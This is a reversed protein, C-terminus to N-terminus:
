KFFSKCKKILEESYVKYDLKPELEYDNNVWINKSVVKGNSVEITNFLDSLGELRCTSEEKDSINNIFLVPTEFGTSPLACHIRSTIVLKADSYLQLLESARDFSEKISPYESKKHYQTVYVCENLFVDEDIFQKLLYYTETALLVRGFGIKGSWIGFKNHKKYNSIILDIKGKNKFYRVLSSFISGLGNGKPLYSLPDVIYIKDRKPLEKKYSLGLTTTLCGSFYSKINVKELSRATEVDRCGIPEYKRLYSVVESDSLLEKKCTSNLHFSVFLPEIDVSPIFNEVKYTFWANMVLKGTGLNYLKLEDRNWLVTEENNFFQKAALSQVYDGINVSNIDEYKLLINKM